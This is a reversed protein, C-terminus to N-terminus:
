ELELSVKTREWHVFKLLQQNTKLSPVHHLSGHKTESSGELLPRWEDAAQVKAMCIAFSFQNESSHEIVRSFRFYRYHSFTPINPHVRDSVCSSSWNVISKMRIVKRNVGYILPLQKHLKRLSITDISKLRQSTRSFAQDIDQHSHGAPMFSVAISRFVGWVILSEM